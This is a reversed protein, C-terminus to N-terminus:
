DVKQISQFMNFRALGNAICAALNIFPGEKGVSLGAAISAILGIARGVYTRMSILRYIPNGGMISRLEPIGSGEADKTLWLSSNILLIGLLVQLIASSYDGRL